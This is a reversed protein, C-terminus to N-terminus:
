VDLPSLKSGGAIGWRRAGAGARAGTGGRGRCGLGGGAGLCRCGGRGGRGCRGGRGQLSGGGRGFRRSSGRGGRRALRRSGRARGLGFIPLTTSDVPTTGGGADGRVNADFQVRVVVLAQRTSCSLKWWESPPCKQLNGKQLNYMCLKELM